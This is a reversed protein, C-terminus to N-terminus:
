NLWFGPCKTSRKTIRRKTIGRGSVGERSRLSLGWKGEVYESNLGTRQVALFFCSRGLGMTTVGAGM